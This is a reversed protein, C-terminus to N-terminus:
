LEMVCSALLAAGFGTAREKRFAPGALDVHGWRVETGALHNYIFQAACSTQANARDRV